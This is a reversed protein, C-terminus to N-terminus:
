KDNIRLHCFHLMRKAVQLHCVRPEEIFKNLLGVGYVIVSRTATLYRLCGILSKYHTSNISKGNSKSSEKLVSIYIPKSNDMKFKKLIDSAYKKRYIFIENNLQMLEISLFYYM